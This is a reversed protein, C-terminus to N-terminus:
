IESLRSTDAGTYGLNALFRRFEPSEFQAAIRAKRNNVTARTTGHRAAIAESSYYPDDVTKNTINALYMVVDRDLDDRAVKDMIAQIIGSDGGGMERKQILLQEPNGQNPYSLMDGFTQDGEEGVPQDINIKGISKLDEIDKVTVTVGMNNKSTLYEAVERKLPERGLTARLTNIAKAMGTRIVRDKRSDSSVGKSQQIQQVVRARIWQGITGGINAHKRTPDFKRITDLLGQIAASELDDRDVGMRSFQNVIRTVLGMNAQIFEMTANDRFQKINRPSPDMGFEDILTNAIEEDTMKATMVLQTNIDDRKKHDDGLERWKKAKLQGFSTKHPSSGPRYGYDYAQELLSKSTLEEVEKKVMELVVEKRVVKRLENINIKM